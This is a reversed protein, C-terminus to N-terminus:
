RSAELEIKQSWNAADIMIVREAGFEALPRAFAEPVSGVNEIFVDPHKISLNSVIFPGLGDDTRLDNGIGLIAIRRTGAIFNELQHTFESDIVTKSWYYEAIIRTIPCTSAKKVICVAVDCSPSYM